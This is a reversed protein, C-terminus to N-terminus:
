QLKESSLKREYQKIFFIQYSVTNSREGLGGEDGSITLTSANSGTEANCPRAPLRPAAGKGFYELRRRENSSFSKNSRPTDETTADM